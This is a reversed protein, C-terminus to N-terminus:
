EAGANKAARVLDILEGPATNGGNRTLIASSLPPTAQVGSAAPIPLGRLKYQIFTQIQGLTRLEKLEENDISIQLADETLLVIEMVTLSDLALDEVLRVDDAPGQMRTRLDRDVFREIIGHVIAPIHRLDGSAHFAFAAQLTAPSCRKLAEHLRALERDADFHAGGAPLSHPSNKSGSLM